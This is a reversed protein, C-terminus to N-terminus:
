RSALSWHRSLTPSTSNAWSTPMSRQDAPTRTRRHRIGPLPRRGHPQVDHAGHPAACSGDGETDVELGTLSETPPALRASHRLLLCRRGFPHRDRRATDSRSAFVVPPGRVAPSRQEPQRFRRGNPLCRWCSPLSRWGFRRFRWGGLGVRAATMGHTVPCWGDRVAYSMAPAAYSGTLRQPRKPRRQGTRVGCWPSEAM